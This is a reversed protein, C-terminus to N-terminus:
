VPDGKPAFIDLGKLILRECVLSLLVITLTWAFLDATELYVKSQYLGYGITQRVAGIVEASVGAKWCLGLGVSCAARFYPM